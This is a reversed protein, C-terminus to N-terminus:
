VHRVVPCAELVRAGNSRAWDIAGDLLAAGVGRRRWGARTAFCSIAWVHPDDAPADPMPATLRRAGNWNPVDSRPGVQVWGVPDGGWYAILGPPPGKKVRERFRRRTTTRLGAEFAARPMRWYMCWCQSCTGRGSGFVVVIDNWRAITLPAIM